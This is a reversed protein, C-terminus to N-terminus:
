AGAGRAALKMVKRQVSKDKTARKKEAKSLGKDVMATAKIIMGAIKRAIEEETAGVYIDGRKQEQLLSLDVSENKMAAQQRITAERDQRVGYIIGKVIAGIMAGQVAGSLAGAIASAAMGAAGVPGLLLMPLGSLAGLGAGIAAGYKAGTKVGSWLARGLTEQSMYGDNAVAKQIMKRTKGDKLLEKALKERDRAMVKAETLTFRIPAHDETLPMAEPLAEAEADETLTEGSSVGMSEQLNKVYDPSASDRAAVYARTTEDRAEELGSRMRVERMWEASEDLKSGAFPDKAKKPAHSRVIDEILKM